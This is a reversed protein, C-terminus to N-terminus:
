SGAGRGVSGHRSRAGHDDQGQQLAGHGGPVWVWDMQKGRPRQVEEVEYQQLDWPEWSLMPPVPPLEKPHDRPTNPPIETGNPTFRVEGGPRRPPTRPEVVESWSSESGKKKEEMLKAM